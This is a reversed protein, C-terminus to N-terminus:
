SEDASSLEDLQVPAADAADGEAETEDELDNDRSRKTRYKKGKAPGRKGPVGGVKALGKAGVKRYMTEGRRYVGKQGTGYRRETFLDKETFGPACLARLFELLDKKETRIFLQDTKVPAKLCGFEFNMDRYTVSLEICENARRAEKIASRTQRGKNPTNQQEGFLNKTPAQESSSPEPAERMAQLARTEQIALLGEVYKLTPYKGEPVSPMGVLSCAIKLLGWSRPDVGVFVERQESEKFSTAVWEHGAVKVHCKMKVDIKEDDTENITEASKEHLKECPEEDIHEPMSDVHETMEGCPPAAEGGACPSESEFDTTTQLESTQLSQSSASSKAFFYKIDRVPKNQDM